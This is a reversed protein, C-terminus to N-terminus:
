KYNKWSAINALTDNFSDGVRGEKYCLYSKIHVLM